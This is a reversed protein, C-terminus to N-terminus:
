GAPPVTVVYFVGEGPGPNVVQHPEGAPIHIADGEEVVAAVAGAKRVELRGKLMYLIHDSVKHTEEDMGAGPSFTTIHADAKPCGNGANFLKVASVTTDHGPPVYREGRGKKIIKM